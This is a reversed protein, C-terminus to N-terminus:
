SPVKNLLSSITKCILPIMVNKVEFMSCSHKVSIKNKIKKILKRQKQYDAMRKNEQINLNKLKGNM